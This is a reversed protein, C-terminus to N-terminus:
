DEPLIAGFSFPKGARHFPAQQQCFRVCTSTDELTCQVVRVIRVEGDPDDNTFSVTRGLELIEPTPYVVRDRLNRSKDPVGSQRLCQKAEEENKFTQVIVKIATM